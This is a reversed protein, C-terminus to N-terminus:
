QGDGVGNVCSPDPQSSVAGPLNDNNGGNSASFVAFWEDGVKVCKSAVNRFGSPMLTVNGPSHNTWLANSSQHTTGSASCGALAISAAAVPILALKMQM